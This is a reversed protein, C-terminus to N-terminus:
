AQIVNLYMLLLNNYRQNDTKFVLVSSKTSDSISASSDINQIYQNTNNLIDIYARFQDPFTDYLKKNIALSPAELPMAMFLHRSKSILWVTLYNAPNKIGRLSLSFYKHRGGIPYSIHITSSETTSIEIKM